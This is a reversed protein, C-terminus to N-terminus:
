PILREAAYKTDLYENVRLISGDRIRFAFHYYNEYDEGRATRALIRFQASVWEGEAILQEVEVRLPVSADYLGTASGVLQLVAERGEYLGGYATSPPVWWAVQEDFMEGLKPDGAAVCGILERVLAKNDELTSM